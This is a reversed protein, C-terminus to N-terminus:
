DAKCPQCLHIASLHDVKRQECIRNLVELVSSVVPKGKNEEIVPLVHRVYFLRVCNNWEIEKGSVKQEETKRTKFLRGLHGVACCSKTNKNCFREWCLLLDGEGIKRDGNDVFYMIEGVETKNAKDYFCSPGKIVRTGLNVALAQMMINGDKHGDLEDLYEESKGLTKALAKSWKDGVAINIFGISEM